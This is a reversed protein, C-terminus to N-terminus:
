KAQLYVFRLVFLIALLYILWSAERGRGTFFKLAAYSIFGIAIGSAISFTLPMMIIILFAPIAETYDQWDIKTISRIMMSGVIVLAPATVPHLLVGSPDKYGGGIMKIFPSFFLALLFFVGTVIAALGTRGGTAIGSASEVYATVTPTGCVAGICTGVADTMMAKGVRPFKGGKIFGGLEGVGALTGVTDFVDMFLFVFIVTVLGMKLAGVIDMKMFTPAMTPPASVLGQYHVIDLPIGAIATILIGWLMAGKVNKVLLVGTVVLGLVSLLTPVSVIKGLTVITSPHAVVVGADILGVFAILMGIGAAISYRMSPPIAEILAQRMKTLTLLIFILGEIFVCGLAVQWSIGMTICVTYTFFANEGMGPALAIPYNAYLGMLITAIGAAICTAMMASGFDMGTQSIMAPNVFIIYAMTMFTTLGAIVETRIDTKLEGLKFLRELM